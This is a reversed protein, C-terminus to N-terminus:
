YFSKFMSIENLNDLYNNVLISIGLNNLHLKDKWLHNQNINSNEIFKYNHISAYSKLIRNLEDVNAQYLPRCIIGSVYVENVGAGHCINIITIIEKAIEDVSKNTKTFNNTGICIVVTDPKEEELTPIIYHKLQSTTAGPFSKKIATANRLHSNFQNMNIRKCISDSFICIKKGNKTINSYTSNGPSAKKFKNNILDNEPYNNTVIPPRRNKDVNSNQIIPTNQVIDTDERHNINVDIFMGNFRNNTFPIYNNRNRKDGYQQQTNHYTQKNRIHVTEWNNDTVSQKKDLTDLDKDKGVIIEELSKNREELIHLKYKYENIGNNTLEEVYNNRDKMRETEEMKSFKEITYKKFESYDVMLSEFETRDIYNLCKKLCCKESDIREDEKNKEDLQLLVKKLEQIKLENEEENQILKQTVEKLKKSIYKNEGQQMKITIEKNEIDLKLVNVEEANEKMEVRMIKLDNKLQEIKDMKEEIIIQKKTDIEILDEVKSRLQELEMDNEKCCEQCYYIEIYQSQKEEIGVCRGHYWEKCKDCEIMFEGKVYPEQCVCYLPIIQDQDTASTNTKDGDNIENNNINDELIYITDAM